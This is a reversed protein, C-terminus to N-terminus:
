INKIDKIKDYEAHTGIFRIYVSKATMLIMVVLRFNNGNINFVYRQNGVYDVNNFTQRIDALNNWQAESTKDFWDELGSAAQPHTEAYQTLTKKAIIRMSKENRAAFILFLESFRFLIGNNKYKHKTCFMVPEPQM